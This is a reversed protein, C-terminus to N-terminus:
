ISPYSGTTVIICGALQGSTCDTFKQIHAAIAIHLKWSQLANVLIRSQINTNGM